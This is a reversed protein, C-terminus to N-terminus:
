ADCAQRASLGIWPSAVASGLARWPRDQSPASRRCGGRQVRPDACPRAPHIPCGAGAGPALHAGLLRRGRPTCRDHDRRGRSLGPTRMVRYLGRGDGPGRRRSADAGRRCTPLGARGDAATSLDPPLSHAARLVVDGAPFAITVVPESFAHVSVRELRPAVLTMPFRSRVMTAGADQSARGVSRPMLADLGAGRHWPAARCRRRPLCPASVSCPERQPPSAGGEPSCLVSLWRRLSLVPWACRSQLVAVIGVSSDVWMVAVLPVVAALVVRLVM